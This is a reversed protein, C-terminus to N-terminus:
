SRASRGAALRSRAADRGRRSDRARVARRVPGALGRGGGAGDGLRLRVVSSPGLGDVGVRASGLRCIRARARRPGVRIGGGAERGRHVARPQEGAAPIGRRGGHRHHVGRGGGLPYGRGRMPRRQGRPGM